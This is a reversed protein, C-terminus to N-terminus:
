GENAAYAFTIGTGSGSVWFGTYTPLMFVSGGAPILQGSTITSNNALYLNGSVPNLNKVSLHSVNSLTGFNLAFSQGANITQVAEYCRGSGTVSYTETNTLTSGVGSNSFSYSTTYRVENM